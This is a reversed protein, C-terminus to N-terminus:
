SEMGVEEAPEEPELQPEAEVVVAEETADVAEGMGATEPAPIRVAEAAAKAASIFEVQELLFFLKKVPEEPQGPPRVERPEAELLTPKLNDAPEAPEFLERREPTVPAAEAAEEPPLSLVEETSLTRGPLRADAEVAEAGSRTEVELSTGKVERVVSQTRLRRPEPIEELSQQPERARRATERPEEVAEASALPM